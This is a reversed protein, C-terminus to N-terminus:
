LPCLSEFEESVTGELLARYSEIRTTLSTLTEQIGEQGQLSPNFIFKRNWWSFDSKLLGLEAHLTLRFERHIAGSIEAPPIDAEQNRGYELNCYDIWLNRILVTNLSDM